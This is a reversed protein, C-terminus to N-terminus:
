ISGLGHKLEDIQQNWLDITDEKEEPEAFDIVLLATEGTMDDVNIRFEFYTKDDDEEVWHYRVMKNEKKLVQEAQQESGDWVFRFIKGELNVDDAFWESLGSPTSLRSFLIAPSTKIIYELEFKEKQVSM